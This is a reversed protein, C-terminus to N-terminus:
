VLGDDRGSGAIKPTGKRSSSIDRRRSKREPFCWDLANESLRAVGSGPVGSSRFVARKVIENDAVDFGPSVQVIKILTSAPVRLPQSAVIRVPARLLIERITVPCADADVRINM